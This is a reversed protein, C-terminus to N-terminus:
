NVFRGSKSYIVLDVFTSGVHSSPSYRVLVGGLDITGVSELAAVFGERAPNRGTRRLGEVMVKASAYAELSAYSFPENPFHRRMARQYETALETTSSYPLPMIQAFVIGGGQDGLLRALESSGSNVAMFHTPAGVKRAQQVVKAFSTYSGHNFFVEVKEAVIRAAIAQLDADSAGSKLAAPLVVQMGLETGIRRVNELHARGVDSDSHLFGIRRLGYTNALNMMARFEEMHEARVNFVYRNLPRRLGPSGAMSGVLPVKRETIVPVAASTPGGEVLGFILFVRDQDILQTVNQVTRKADGGDDLTRLEIRRGHIGGGANVTQLYALAGVRASKGFEALSGTLPASQGVLISEASVGAQSFGVAPIFAVLGLLSIHLASATGM